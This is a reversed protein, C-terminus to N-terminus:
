TLNFISGSEGREDCAPCDVTEGVAFAETHEETWEGVWECGSCRVRQLSGHLQVLEGGWQKVKGKGKVDVKAGGGAMVETVEIGEIGVTKLGATAEFGDINQSYVRKLQKRKHLTHM